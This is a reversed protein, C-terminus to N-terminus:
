TAAKLLATVIHEPTVKFGKPATVNDLAMAVILSNELKDAAVKFIGTAGRLRPYYLPDVLKEKRAVRAIVEAEPGEGEAQGLIEWDSYDCLGAVAEAADDATWGVKYLNKGIGVDLGWQQQTRSSAVYVIAM